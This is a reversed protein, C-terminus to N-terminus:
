KKVKIDEDIIEESHKVGTLSARIKQKTEESQKKGTNSLARRKIHEETQPKKIDKGNKSQKERIEKAREEGYLEEYTKGKRYENLYSKTFESHEYFSVGGTEHLNYRNPALTDFVGIYYEEYEKCEIQNGYKLIIKLFNKKNHKKIANILLKGSGIYRDNLKNTDHMGVYCKGNIKCITLYTYYYKKM